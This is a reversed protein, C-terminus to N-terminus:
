TQHYQAFSGLSGESHVLPLSGKREGEDDSSDVCKASVQKTHVHTLDPGEHLGMEVPLLVPLEVFKGLVESFDGLKIVETSEVVFMPLPLCAQASHVSTAGTM